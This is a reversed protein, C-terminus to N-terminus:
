GGGLVVVVVRRAACITAIYEMSIIPCSLKNNYAAIHNRLGPDSKGRGRSIVIDVM